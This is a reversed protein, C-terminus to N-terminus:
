KRKKKYNRIKSKVSAKDSDDFVFRKDPKNSFTKKNQTIVGYRLYSTETKNKQPNKNLPMNKHWKKNKDKTQKNHTLGLSHFNDGDEEFIFNEHKTYYNYRFENKAFRKKNQKKRM